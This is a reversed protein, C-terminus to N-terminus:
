RADERPRLVRNLLWALTFASAVTLAALGLRRPSPETVLTTAQSGFGALGVVVAVMGLLTGVVFDRYRMPTAGVAVNALTFPLPIKRLLFAAVIGHRAMAGTAQAVRKGALREVRDFGVRRGIAFGVSASALCGVMAYVPGLLPGFAIGTATILLLVPVMLLGLAVFMLTVGPLAYWAHRHPALWEVIAGVSTHSSMALWSLLLM